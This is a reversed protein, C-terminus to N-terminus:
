YLFVFSKCLLIINIMLIVIENCFCQFLTFLLFLKKGFFDKVKSVDTAEMTEKDPFM